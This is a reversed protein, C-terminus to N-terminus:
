AGSHITLRMPPIQELSDSFPAVVRTLKVASTTAGLLVTTVNVNYRFPTAVGHATLVVLVDDASMCDIAIPISTYEAAAVATYWIITLILTGPLTVIEFAAITHSFTGTAFKV